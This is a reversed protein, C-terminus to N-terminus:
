RQKKNEKKNIEYLLPLPIRLPFITSKFEM